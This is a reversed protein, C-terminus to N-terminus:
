REPFFWNIVKCIMLLLFLSFCFLGLGFLQHPLGDVLEPYGHFTSVAVSTIRVINVVIAILVSASLMLLRSSIKKFSISGVVFALAVISLLSRLGSCANVVELTSNPLQLINGERFVPVNFFTLLLATFKSAFSQLPLTIRAYISAPIPIMFLLFCLEWYIKKVINWGLLYSLSLWLTIIFALYKLTRFETIEGLFVLSLSGVIALVLWWHENKEVLGCFEDKRQWILYLVIPIVFFGHSYDEDVSWINILESFIPSFAAIFSIALFVIQGKRLIQQSM